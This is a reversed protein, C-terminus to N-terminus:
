VSYRRVNSLQSSSTFRFYYYSVYVQDNEVYEQFLVLCITSSTGFLGIFFLLIIILILNLTLMLFIFSLSLGVAGVIMFILRNQIKDSLKGLLPPFVFWTFPFITVILQITTIDVKLYDFLYRPIYSFVAMFITNLFLVSVLILYVYRKSLIM